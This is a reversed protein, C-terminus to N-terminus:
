EAPGSRLHTRFFDIIRRAGDRSARANGSPTGGKPVPVGDVPHPTITGLSRLAWFPYATAISHGAGPYVESDLPPRFGHAELRQTLLEVALASPWIPDADGALLLVPSRIAEARIAAEGSVMGALFRERMSAPAHGHILTENRADPHQYVEAAPLDAGDLTYAMSAAESCCGGWVVNSPAVAVVAGVRDPLESALLLAMEAGRSAGGLGVREQAHLRSAFAIANSIYELPLRDLENPRGEFNHTALALTAIGNSALLAARGESAGGGSGALWVVTPFPGAGAPEYLVGHVGGEAVARRRISPDDLRLTQRAQLTTRADSRPDTRFVASFLLEYSFDEGPYPRDPLESPVDRQDARLVDDGLAMPLMSWILGDSDVGTYTGATSYDRAVDVEGRANAYFVARSSWPRGEGDVLRGNIVVLGGPLAGKVVLGLPDISYREAGNLRIEARQSDAAHGGGASMMLVAWAFM